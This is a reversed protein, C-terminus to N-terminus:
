PRPMRGKLAAMFRADLLTRDPTAEAQKIKKWAQEYDGTNFLAVAWNQLNITHQPAKAHIRAFRTFADQMLADSKTEIAAMSVAKAYDVMFNTENAGAKQAEAYLPVASAAKGPINVQVAAMGWLALACQKDLLWAQNFRRMADDSQLQQAHQWGRAALQQAARPRDGGTQLDVGEIFEREVAKQAESKPLNGFKPLVSPDKAAAQSAAKAPQVAPQALACAAALWLTAGAGCRAALRM